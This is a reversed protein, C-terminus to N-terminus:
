SFQFDAMPFVCVLFRHYGSKLNVYHTKFHTSYIQTLDLETYFLQLLCNSDVPKGANREFHSLFCKSNDVIEKMLKAKVDKKEEATTSRSQLVFLYEAYEMNPNKPLGEDSSIDTAM